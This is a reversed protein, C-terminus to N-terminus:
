RWFLLITVATVAVGVALVVFPRRELARKLPEGFRQFLFALGFYRLGRAAIAGAFFIPLDLGFVGAALTFTLFPLPSLGGLFVALFENERIKAQAEAFSEPSVVHAFFYSSLEHWLTAGLTYGLLAGGVSGATACLAFLAWRRPHVLVMGALIVNIPLPFVSSDSVACVGLVVPGSKRQSFRELFRGPRTYWRPSEPVAM